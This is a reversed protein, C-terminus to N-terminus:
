GGYRLLAYMKADHVTDHVRIRQRQVGEYVARVSEAVRQSAVNGAAVVIELRNLGIENFGIEKLLLAAQRAAGLKLKSVRVWYGLNCVLDMRNIRNLGCSGAIAGDEQDIIVFEYAEGDDWASIAFRVWEKTGSLTYGETMWSMWEGLHRRSEDAAAFIRPIDAESYPRVAFRFGDKQFLRRAIM